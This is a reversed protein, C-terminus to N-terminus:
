VVGTVDRNVDAADFAPSGVPAAQGPLDVVVSAVRPFFAKLESGVFLTVSEDGVVMHDAEITQTPENFRTVVYKKLSM